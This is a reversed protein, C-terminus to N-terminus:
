HGFQTDPEVTIKHEPKFIILGDCVECKVLKIDVGNRGNPTLQIDEGLASYESKCTSCVGVYVKEKPPTRRETLKIAM